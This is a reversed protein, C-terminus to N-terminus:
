AQLQYPPARSRWAHSHQAPALAPPTVGAVWFTVPEPAAIAVPAPLLFHGSQAIERCIACNSPLDSPSQQGSRQPDADAVNAAATSAVRGSDFHHHTQTLFSQWSVAFLLFALLLASWGGRLDARVPSSARVTM